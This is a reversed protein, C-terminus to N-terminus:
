LTHVLAPAPQQCANKRMLAFFVSFRKHIEFVEYKQMGDIM